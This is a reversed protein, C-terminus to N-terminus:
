EIVEKLDTVFEKIFRKKVHPMVVVRIINEEEDVGVMWGMKKLSEAVKDARCKIAVVNLVPEVYEIGNKQLLKVLYHTVDMCKKVIKRYGEMGLHHMVAYSAAAAAGPRTGLMGIQWKTHTCKSRIKIADLWNKRMILFGSPIPTLGMKHGDVSISSVGELRFDFLPMNELFPIVFGGFAADVHLFIHEEKCFDSIEEIEDIYGYSTNGAVAVGCCTESTVAKKFDRARMNYKGNVFVGKMSLINLAKNFSFHAHRPLVVERKKSVERFVWLSTINSETGGSTICGAYGSPAHVMKAVFKIAKEELSKTGKFLEADGLNTEMFEAYVKKGVSHPKTCMSGLIHGDDFKLDIERAKKIEDM